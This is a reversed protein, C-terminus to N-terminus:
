RGPPRTSPHTAWIKEPTWSANERLAEEIEEPYAEAYALAARLQQESLWDYSASLREWNEGVARFGSIIEWVDLGTGAVRAVRGSTGDAFLIGPVQRLKVAEALMEKAVDAFSRGTRRASDEIASCVAEPICLTISRAKM